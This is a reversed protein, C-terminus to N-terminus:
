SKVSKEKKLGALILGEDMYDVVKADEAMTEMMIQHYAMVCLDLDILGKLYNSIPILTRIAGEPRKPYFEMDMYNHTVERYIQGNEYVFYGGVSMDSEDGYKRINEKVRESDIDELCVGLNVFPGSCCHRNSPREPDWLIDGKRFPTPFDFWLGMFSYCVLDTEEESLNWCTNRYLSYIYPKKNLDFEIVIEKSSNLYRKRIRSRIIDEDEEKKNWCTKFTSYLSDDELWEIGSEDKYLASHSYVADSDDKYFESLLRDELEMYKRLMTKISSYTRYNCREGVEYDEMNDIIWQWADHKEDVSADKCQYVLWAAEAANYQYSIEKHYERIDNSNIFRYFEM